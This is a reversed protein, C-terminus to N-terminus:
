SWGQSYGGSSSGGGGRDPRRITASRRISDMWVSDDLMERVHSPNVTSGRRSSRASSRATENPDQLEFSFASSHGDRRPSGEGSGRPSTPSLPGSLPHRYSIDFSSLDASVGTWSRHNAHANDASLFTPTSPSPGASSPTAPSPSFGATTKRNSINRAGREEENDVLIEPVGLQPIDVMRASRKLEM